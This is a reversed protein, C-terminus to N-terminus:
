LVINGPVLQIGTPAKEMNPAFGISYEYNGSDYDTTVHATITLAQEEGFSAVVDTFTNLKAFDIEQPYDTPLILGAGLSNFLTAVTFEEASLTVTKKEVAIGANELAQYFADSVTLTYFVSVNENEKTYTDDFESNLILKGYVHYYMQMDAASGWEPLTLVNHFSQSISTFDVYSDNETVINQTTMDNLKQGYDIIASATAASNISSIVTLKIPEAFAQKARITAYNDGLSYEIDVFSYPDGAYEAFISEPDVWELIWDLYGLNAGAPISEAYIIVGEDEEEGEDYSVGSAFKMASLMMLDSNELEITSLNAEAEPLEILTNEDVGPGDDPHEAEMEIQKSFWGYPDADTFGQTNAALVFVSLLVIASFVIIWKVFDSKKHEYFDNYM